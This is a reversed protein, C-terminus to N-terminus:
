WSANRARLSIWEVAWAKIMKGPIMWNALDGQESVEMAGLIAIDIHGRPDHRLQRCQLLHRCRPAVHRNGQRRQDLRSRGRTRAPLAGHRPIGNKRKSARRFMSPPIFIRWWPPCASALNVYYGDRLERAARQAIQERTLGVTTM